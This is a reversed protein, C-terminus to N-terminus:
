VCDWCRFNAQDAEHPINRNHLSRIETAVGAKEVLICVIADLLGSNV